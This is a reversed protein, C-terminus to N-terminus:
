GSILAIGTPPRRRALYLPDANLRGLDAHATVFRECL